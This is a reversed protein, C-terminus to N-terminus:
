RILFEPTLDLWRHKVLSRLSESAHDLKLLVQAFPAVM